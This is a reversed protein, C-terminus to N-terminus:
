KDFIIWKNNKKKNNIYEGAKNYNLNTNINKM